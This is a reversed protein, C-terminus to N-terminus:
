IFHSQCAQETQSCTTNVDCSIYWANNSLVVKFYKCAVKWKLKPSNKECYIDVKKMIATNPDLRLLFEDLQMSMDLKNAIFDMYCM